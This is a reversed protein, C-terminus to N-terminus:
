DQQAVWKTPEAPKLQRTQIPTKTGRGLAEAAKRAILGFGKVTADRSLAELQVRGENRNGSDLEVQGLALRAEFGYNIFGIRTAEGVVAQLSKAAEAKEAPTDSAARVRAATIAVFLELERDHCKELIASARDIAKRADAVKGQALLAQSLVANALSANKSAKESEFEDAVRRATAAAGASNGQDLLLEALALQTQAGNLRDGIGEFISAAETEYKRAQEIHGDARAASGMCALAIAAKYRDGIRQCIELSEECTKMAGRRDGLALLVPGLAGKVLAVGDQNGFGVDTALAEQYARRAGPLDGLAFLVDGVNDLENAVGQQSGIQRLIGLSEEYMKKAAAPDGQYQLAIGIEGIAMCVNRRDGAAAFVQKAETAAVVAEDPRGLNELAWAQGARAKALLLSAGAGQAKGAAKVSSALDRKYDGLSEAARADALDIRPDEGIPRPLSRLAAVTALSDQGHGGSVQAGALALGYELSDPYFDFLARYIEIAKEWNKSMEYYRGEVLLRDARGLNSSVEFAKKAEERAAEDYGLTAWCTALASHSLAFSPDSAVAKQLLDRAALTDFFRLKSLGQSYLRAADRNSPLAGGIEDAEEPTVAQVGLQARLRAGARSVLDFLRSETGTESIAAITEGSQTDQLRLDLRVQEDLEKGLSAYSGVVVFETGLDNRIRKLSDQGLSDVAPLSLEIQMRAVIEEPIIHLQEGAALETTLWDSLATSLWAQEARGSLNRLGLVAVTRRPSVHVTPRKSLNARLLYTVGCLLAVSAAGWIRLSSLKRPRIGAPRSGPELPDELHAPKVFDSDQSAEPTVRASPHEPTACEATVPAIFRYGRRPLTEIFRPSEASDGLAGRLKNIAKNLSLDFDVYTDASWLEQRLEERTLLEGPHELLMTLIQFPQHQLKIRLGHKRLEAARLDVEFVSFRLIPISPRSLGM